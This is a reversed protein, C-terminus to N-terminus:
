SVYICCIFHEKNEELCNEHLFDSLVLQTEMCLGNIFVLVIFGDVTRFPIERRPSRLGALFTLTSKKPRSFSTHVFLEESSPTRSSAASRKDTPVIALLSIMERPLTAKHSSSSSKGRKGSKLLYVADATGVWLEQITRGRIPM